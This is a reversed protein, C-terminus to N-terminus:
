KQNSDVYEKANRVQTDDPIPVRSVDKMAAINAWAATKQCEIPKAMNKEKSKNKAM